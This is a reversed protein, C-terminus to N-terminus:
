AEYTIKVPTGTVEEYVRNWLPIPYVSAFCDFGYEIAEGAGPVKEAAESIIEGLQRSHEIDAVAHLDVFRRQGKDFQKHGLIPQLREALIPTMSESLYFAGIITYPDEHSALTRYLAQIQFSECPMRQKAAESDGGMRIYDDFALRPHTLEEDVIDVFRRILNPRDYPMRGAATFIAQIAPPVWHYSQLLITRVLRMTLDADRDTGYMVKYTPTRELEAILEATKTNLRELLSCQTQIHTM